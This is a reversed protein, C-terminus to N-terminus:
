GGASGRHIADYAVVDVAPHKRHAIAYVHRVAAIEDPRISPDRWERRPKSRDALGRWGHLFSAIQQVNQPNRSPAGPWVCHIHPGMGAPGGPAGPGRHWAAIGQLRLKRTDADPNRAPDILIDFACGYPRGNAIGSALHTGASYWSVTNGPSIVQGVRDLAKPGLACVIASAAGPALEAASPNPFITGVRRTLIAVVAIALAIGVGVIQRDRLKADM